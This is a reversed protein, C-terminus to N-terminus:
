PLVDLVIGIHHDAAVAMSCRQTETVVGVEIAKEGKKLQGGNMSRRVILHVFDKRHCGIQLYYEELPLAFCGGVGSDEHQKQM